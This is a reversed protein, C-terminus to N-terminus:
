IKRCYWRLLEDYKGGFHFCTGDKNEGDINLGLHRLIEQSRINEKHAYAAVNQIGSHLNPLLFGYLNRFVEKGRWAPRIQIEEM